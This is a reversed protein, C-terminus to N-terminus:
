EKNGYVFYIATTLKNKQIFYYLNRLINNKLRNRSPHFAFPGTSISKFGINKHLLFLEKRTFGLEYGSNRELLKNKLINKHLYEFIKKLIKPSPITSHLRFIWWLNFAPVTNFSVGREKLIRYSEKLIYETDPFHEIVGGGYIYDISNDKIPMNNIDAHILIYKKYGKEDFYRKLTLLMPYNFDIGVFYAKYNNLVYEGIHAPGCGIELYITNKSFKFSKKIYDLHDFLKNEDFDKRDEKLKNLNFNYIREWAKKSTEVEPSLKLNTVWIGNKDLKAKKQDLIIILKKKM